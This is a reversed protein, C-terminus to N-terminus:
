RQAARRWATRRCLTHMDHSHQAKLPSCRACAAVVQHACGWPTCQALGCACMCGFGACARARARARAKPTDDMGRVFLATFWGLSYQYMPDVGALESIAFFLLAARAAVPRYGERAADIDRETAEAEAM